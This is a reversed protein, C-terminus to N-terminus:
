LPFWVSTFKDALKPIYRLLGTKMLGPRKYQRRQALYGKEADLAASLITSCDASIAFCSNDPNASHLLGLSKFSAAQAASIMPICAILILTIFIIRTRIKTKM